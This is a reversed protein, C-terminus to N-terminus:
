GVDDAGESLTNEFALNIWALSPGIEGFAPPM